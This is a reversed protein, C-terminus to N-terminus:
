LPMFITIDPERGSSSQPSQLGNPRERARLSPSFGQPLTGQAVHCRLRAASIDPLDKAKDVHVLQPGQPHHDIRAVAGGSRRNVCNDTRQVRATRAHLENADVVRRIAGERIAYWVWQKRFIMRRRSIDHDPLARVHPHCKVAVKVAAEEEVPRPLEHRPFIDYAQEGLYEELPLRAALYNVVWAHYPVRLVNDRAPAADCDLGTWDLVPCANM